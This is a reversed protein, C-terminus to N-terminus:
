VTKNPDLTLQYVKTLAHHPFTLNTTKMTPVYSKCKESAFLVATNNKVDIAEMVTNITGTQCSDNLYM